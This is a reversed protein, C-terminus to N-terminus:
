VGLYLDSQLRPQCRELVACTRRAFGSFVSLLGERSLPLPPRDGQGERGRLRLHQRDGNGARVESGARLGALDEFVERITGPGGSLTSDLYITIYQQTLTPQWSSPPSIYPRPM